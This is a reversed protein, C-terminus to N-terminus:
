RGLVTEFNQVINYFTFAQADTLGSGITALECEKQGGTAANSVKGILISYGTFGMTPAKGSSNIVSGKEYRTVNSATSSFMFLGKTNAPKPGFDYYGFWNSADWVNYIAMENYPKGSDYCGMDYGSVTNQTGSYYSISNDNYNLISDNVHTDAYQSIAPFLVGAFSYVPTGYFTLRYAADLDRPDILNWKTTAATGGVMPYIAIFKSWLSSDKLQIVFNNIAIKQTSDTIASSDIFKKSAADYIITSKYLGGEISFEKQCSALLVIFFIFVVSRITNKM